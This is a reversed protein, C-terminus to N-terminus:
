KLYNNVHQKINNKVSEWTQGKLSVPDDDAEADDFYLMAQPVSILTM